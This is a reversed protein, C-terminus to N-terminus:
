SGNNCPARWSANERMDENKMMTSVDGRVTDGYIVKDNLEYIMYM